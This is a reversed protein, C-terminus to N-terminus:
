RIKETVNTDVKVSVLVSTDDAKKTNIYNLGTPRLYIVVIIFLTPGIDSGQM